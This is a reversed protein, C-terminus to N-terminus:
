MPNDSDKNVEELLHLAVKAVQALEIRKKHQAIVVPTHEEVQEYANQLHQM